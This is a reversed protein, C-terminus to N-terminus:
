LTRKSNFTKLAKYKASMADLIAEAKKDQANANIGFFLAIIILLGKKM